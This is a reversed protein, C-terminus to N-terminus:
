PCLKVSHDPGRDVRSHPKATPDSAAGFQKKIEDLGRHYERHTTARSLGVIEAIAEFNMEGWLRMVMIERRPSDLQMLVTTLEDADLRQQVQQDDRAFWNAPRLSAERTQRRRKSRQWQLLCHRTVRVLWAMPDRPTQEQQALRLFAEQVADEAPEGISRAILLLRDAHADWIESLTKADM